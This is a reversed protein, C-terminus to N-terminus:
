FSICLRWISYCNCFTSYLNFKWSWTKIWNSDLNLMIELGEFFLDRPFEPIALRKSSKNIREFNDEPRFMWIKGLNDKYAKMGEFVAQGYHFVKAAPSITLPGFPKITPNHWSGDKFDCEFMYDSFEEGFVLNNFDVENIRSETVKNVTILRHSTLSM